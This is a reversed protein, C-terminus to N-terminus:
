CIRRLISVPNMAVLNHSVMRIIHYASMGVGIHQITTPVSVNAMAFNEKSLRVMTFAAGPVGLM